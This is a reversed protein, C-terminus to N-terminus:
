SKCCCEQIYHIHFTGASGGCNHLRTASTEFHLILTFYISQLTGRCCHLRTWLCLSALCDISARVPISQIPAKFAMMSKKKPSRKWSFCLKWCCCDLQAKPKPPLNYENHVSLCQVPLLQFKRFSSGTVPLSPLSLCALCRPTIPSKGPASVWAVSWM